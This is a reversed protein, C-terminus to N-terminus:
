CICWYGVLMCVMLRDIYVVTVLWCVCWYGGLTCNCYAGSDCTPTLTEEIREYKVTTPALNNQQLDSILSALSPRSVPVKLKITGANENAFPLSSCSDSSSLSSELSDSSTDREVMRDTYSGGDRKVQRQANSSADDRIPKVTDSCTDKQVLRETDSSTDKEEVTESTEYSHVQGGVGVNDVSDDDLLLKNQSNVGRGTYAMKNSRSPDTKLGKKANESRFTDRLEQLTVIRRLRINEDCDLKTSASAASPRKQFYQINNVVFTQLRPGGTSLFAPRAATENAAVCDQFLTRTPPTFTTATHFFPEVGTSVDDVRHTYTNKPFNYVATLASLRSPPLQVDNTPNCHDVPTKRGTIVLRCAADHPAIVNHTASVSAPSMAQHPVAVNPFTVNKNSPENGATLSCAPIRSSMQPIVMASPRYKDTPLQKSGSRFFQQRHCDNPFAEVTSSTSSIPESELFDHRRGDDTFTKLEPQVTSGPDSPRCVIVDRGTACSSVRTPVGTVQETSLDTRRYVSPPTLNTDASGVPRPSPLRHLSNKTLKKLRDLALM